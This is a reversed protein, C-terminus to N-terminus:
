VGGQAFRLVRPDVRLGSRSVSDINLRFNTGRPSFTLCFMAQGRCAPDAESITLVGRGRVASVLDRLTPQPLAGLYVVDCNASALASPAVIRRQILRGDVLQMGDLRGAYQTPGVVCLGVPNPRDPWRTYEIMSKVMRAVSLERADEGAAMVPLSAFLAIVAALRSFARM